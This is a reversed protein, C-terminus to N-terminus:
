VPADDYITDVYNSVAYTEGMVVWQVIYTVEIYINDWTDPMTPFYWALNYLTLHEDWDYSATHPGYLWWPGQGPGTKICLFGSSGTEKTWQGGSYTYYEFYVQRWLYPKPHVPPDHYQASWLTTYVNVWQNATFTTDDIFAEAIGGALVPAVLSLITSLALITLVSMTIRKKM